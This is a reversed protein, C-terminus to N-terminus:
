SFTLPTLQVKRVYYITFYTNGTFQYTLFKRMLLLLTANEEGIRCKVLWLNPDKVDPLLTKQTIEDSM